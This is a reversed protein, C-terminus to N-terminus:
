LKSSLGQQHCPQSFDSVQKFYRLKLRANTAPLPTAQTFFHMNSKYLGNISVILTCFLVKSLMIARHMTPKAAREMWTGSMRSQGRFTLIADLLAYDKEMHNPEQCLKLCIDSSASTMWPTSNTCTHPHPRPSGPSNGLQHSLFAAAPPVTLCTGHAPKVRQWQSSGGQRCGGQWGVLPFAALRIAWSSRAEVNGWIVATPQYPSLVGLVSLM